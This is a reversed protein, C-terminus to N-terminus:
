SGTAASGGARATARRIRAANAPSEVRRQGVGHRTMAVDLVMDLALAPSGVDRGGFDRDIADGLQPVVVARRHVAGIRRGFGLAQVIVAGQKMPPILAEDDFFFHDDWIATIM